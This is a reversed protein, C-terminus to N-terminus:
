RSGSKTDGVCSARLRGAYPSSANARAFSDAADRAEDPHGTACLALIREVWREQELASRPYRRQHEDLLALARAGYGDRLAADARALSALEDQPSSPPSPTSTRLSKVPPPLAVPNATPPLPLAVTSPPMARAPVAPRAPQASSVSSVSSRATLAPEHASPVAPSRFAAVGGIGAGVVLVTAAVVKAGTSGFAAVAGATWSSTTALGVTAAGLRAALRKQMRARDGVTPDDYGRAAEFLALDEPHLPSV